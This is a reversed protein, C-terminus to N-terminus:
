AFLGGKNAMAIPLGHRLLFDKERPVSFDISSLTINLKEADKELDEFSVWHEDEFAKIEEETFYDRNIKYKDEM